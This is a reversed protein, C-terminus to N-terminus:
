SQRDAEKNPLQINAPIVPRITGRFEPQRQPIQFDCGYLQRYEEHFENWRPKDSNTAVGGHVQHFTGEGWLLIVENHPDDCLKKWIALNALGGGPSTFRQDYGGLEVWHHNRLFLANTEAPMEMWGRRSSGAFVSADFLRYPNEQWNLSELIQDEIHQNYGRQCSKIQVDPGLHFGFTGIVPRSKNSAAELVGKLLGPSAMRAGDIMVGIIDGKAIKLAQNIAPVPSVTPNPFEYCSINPAISELQENTPKETSGNDMVIIEYDDTDIDIQIKPSLTQLTRPLERTMNFSIVIVSLNLQPM